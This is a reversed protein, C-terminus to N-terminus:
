TTGAAANATDLGTRSISLWVKTAVAVRTRGHGARGAPTLTGAETDLGVGWDASATTVPRLPCAGPATSLPRYCCAPGHSRDTVAAIAIDTHMWSFTGCASLPARENADVFLLALDAAGADANVQGVRTGRAAFCAVDIPITLTSPAHKLTMQMLVKARSFIRGQPRKGASKGCSLRWARDQKPHPPPVTARPHKPIQEDGSVRDCVFQEVREGATLCCDVQALQEDM